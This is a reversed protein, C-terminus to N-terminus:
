RTWNEVLLGPVRGFERENNTVLTRQEALAHAAIWMDNSGIPVGRSQLAHRLDRYQAAADPPVGLTEILDLLGRMRERTPQSPPQKLLGFEIEGRTVVSMALDDPSMARVRETLVPQGGRALYSLIDTDLLFKM